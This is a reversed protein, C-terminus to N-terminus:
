WFLSPPLHFSDDNYGDIVIAFQCARVNRAIQGFVQLAFAFVPLFLVVYVHLREAHSGDGVTLM